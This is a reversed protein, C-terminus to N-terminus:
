SRLGHKVHEEWWEEWDVVKGSRRAEEAAFVAAHSRVVEELTCGVYATQSEDVSM